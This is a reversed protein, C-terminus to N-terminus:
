KAFYPKLDLRSFPKSAAMTGASLYIVRNSPEFVMSQLTGRSGVTDLMGEIKRVDIKGFLTRSADHLYDYRDCRGPTETDQNRQHNTSILARDDKGYRVNVAAPSLEVVARSGEADMLMLNNATQCPTRKLLAVAEDVNSCRELVTRYLLTYPMATPMRTSRPVEMNALSLGRENMGSLVGIMGPWGIAAYAFRGDNPQVILVTTYKDAINLSWFDLNRGFRAVHDPAASAPLTITSCGSLQALDLFCQGLMTEREDIKTATALAHLEERHEPRLESEFLNAASLAIFRKAGSGVFVNLYQDHLLHISDGLQSAEQAGLQSSSGKLLVIPLPFPREVAPPTSDNNAPVLAARQPRSACGWLALFVLGWLVGGVPAFPGFPRTRYFRIM